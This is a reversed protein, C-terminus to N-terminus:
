RGGDGAMVGAAAFDERMQRAQETTLRDAIPSLPLAGFLLLQGNGNCGLKGGTISLTSSEAPMATVYVSAGVLLAALLGRMKLEKGLACM